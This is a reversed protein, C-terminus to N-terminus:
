GRRGVSSEPASERSNEFFQKLGGNYVEGELLHIVLMARQGPTLRKLLSPRQRATCDVFDSWAQMWSSVWKTM